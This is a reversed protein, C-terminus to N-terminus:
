GGGLIPILITKLGVSNAKQFINEIATKLIM